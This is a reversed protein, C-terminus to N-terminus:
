KATWALKIILEQEPKVLVRGYYRNVWHFRILSRTTGLDDNTDKYSMIPKFYEDHTQLTNKCWLYFEDIEEKTDRCLSIMKLDESDIYKHDVPNQEDLQIIKEMLEIAAEKDKCDINFHVYDMIDYNSYKHFGNIQLHNRDCYQSNLKILENLLTQERHYDPYCVVCVRYWTKKHSDHYFKGFENGGPGYYYQMRVNNRDPGANLRGM